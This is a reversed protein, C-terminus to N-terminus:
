SAAGVNSTLANSPSQSTFFNDPGDPARPKLFIEVLLTNGQSYRPLMIIASEARPLLKVWDNRQTNVSTRLYDQLIRNM